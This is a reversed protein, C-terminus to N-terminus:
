GHKNTLNFPKNSRVPKGLKVSNKRAPRPPGHLLFLRKSVTKFYNSGFLITGGHKNTLNYPKNSRVHKGLKVSNKRAPRPPGHLLFTELSAGDISTDLRGLLENRLWNIKIKIKQSSLILAAMRRRKEQKSRSFKELFFANLGM